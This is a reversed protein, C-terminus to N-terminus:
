GRADLLWSASGWTKQPWTFWNAYAGHHPQSAVLCLDHIARLFRTTVNSVGRPRKSLTAVPTWSIVLHWAPTGQVLSTPPSPQPVFLNSDQRELSLHLASCPEAFVEPPGPSLGWGLLSLTRTISWQLFSNQRKGSANDPCVYTFETTCYQLLSTDQCILPKSQRTNHGIHTLPWPSANCLKKPTKQLNNNSLDFVAGASSSIAGQVVADRTQIDRM